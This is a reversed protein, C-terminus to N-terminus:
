KDEGYLLDFPKKDSRIVMVANKDVIAELAELSKTLKYFDKGKSHAQAYIEAAKRDAQGKIESAKKVAEATIKSIQLETDSRINAANMRGEARYKAAYQGREAKMQNFIASVNNEPFAIRKIGVQEIAIGFKQQARTKVSNMIQEEIETIKLDDKETSVINKLEYNGLINNKASSVLGELKGEANGVNKISQLFLLPDSINWVVYTLLIISKKDKTLTQTFKTDYIRKRADLYYTKDIPWPYKLHAGADSLIRDPKGFHTIVVNMGEPLSIVAAKFFIFSLILIGLIIRLFLKM